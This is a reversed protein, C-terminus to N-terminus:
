QPRFFKRRRPLWFSLCGPNESRETDSTARAGGVGGKDERSRPFQGECFKIIRQAAEYAAEAENKTYYDVPAGIDFGNPYRTPIYFKDLFRADDICQFPIEYKAKLDELLKTIAHGWFDGGSFEVLAKVAKEAAQHAAFCAWDYDGDEKANKSHKLDSLAQKYWDQYRNAM